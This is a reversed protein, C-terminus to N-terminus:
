AKCSRIILEASPSSFHSRLSIEKNLTGSLRVAKGFSAEENSLSVNFTISERASESLLFEDIPKLAYEKNIRKGLSRRLGRGAPHWPRKASAAKLFLHM